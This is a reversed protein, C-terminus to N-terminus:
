GADSCAGFKQDAQAELRRSVSVRRVTRRDTIKLGFFGYKFPLKTGTQTNPVLGNLGGDV